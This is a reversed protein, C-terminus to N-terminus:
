RKKNVPQNYFTKYKILFSDFYFDINTKDKELKFIDQFDMVLGNGTNRLTIGITLPNAYGPKEVTCTASLLTPTDETFVLPPVLAGLIGRYHNFDKVEKAKGTPAPTVASNIENEAQAASKTETM